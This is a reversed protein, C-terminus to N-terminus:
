PRRGPIRMRRTISQIIVARLVVGATSAQGSRTVYRGVLKPIRVTVMLLCAAIFLNFVDTSAGGPLGLLIPVNHEPDLLLNVGTTFFIAQLLPTSLCGLLSRWWLGAVAQTHPLAYCALAIPAIGALVILTAIRAFWGVLLMYFLVVIILGIVVALVASSPSTLAGVIRAKVFEIVQPGSATEGVMAVTLANAAEICMRCLEVGFNSAVFGFVLRPLLEKAQYRIQFTGHTMAIAGAAIIALVFAANVVVMSRSVLLQVQPFYTVDPSTFFTATLLSVLGGLMGQVREALWEILGNYLWDTM